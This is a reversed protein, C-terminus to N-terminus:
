DDDIVIIPGPATTFIPAVPYTGNRSPFPLPVSVSRFALPWELPQRTPLPIGRLELMDDVSRQSSYNPIPTYRGQIMRCDPCALNMKARIYIDSLKLLCEKCFTHGCSLIFPQFMVELCCPCQNRDEASNEFTKINNNADQLANQLEDHSQPPVLLGRTPKSEVSPNMISLENMDNPQVETGLVEEPGRGLTSNLLLSTSDSPNLPLAPLVPEEYNLGGNRLSSSASSSAAPSRRRPPSTLALAAPLRSSNRLGARTKSKRGYTRRPPPTSPGFVQSHTSLDPTVSHSRRTSVVSNTRM